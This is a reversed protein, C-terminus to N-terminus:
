NINKKFIMQIEYSTDRNISKLVKFEEMPGGTSIQYPHGFKLKSESANANAITKKVEVFNYELSTMTELDSISVQLLNNFSNLDSPASFNSGEYRLTIETWKENCGSHKISLWKDVSLQAAENAIGVKNNLIFTWENRFEKVIAPIPLINKCDNEDWYTSYATIATTEVYYPVSSSTDIIKESVSLVKPNDTSSNSCSACITCCFFLLLLIRLLMQNNVAVLNIM